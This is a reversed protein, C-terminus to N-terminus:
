YFNTAHICTRRDSESENDEDENDEDEDVSDETKGSNDGSFALM